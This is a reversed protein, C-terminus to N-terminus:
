DPILINATFTFIAMIMLGVLASAILSLKTNRTAHILKTYLWTGISVGVILSLFLNM